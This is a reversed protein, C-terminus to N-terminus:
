GIIDLLVVDIEGITQEIDAIANAVIKNAIANDSKNDFFSDVAIAASKIKGDKDVGVFRDIENLPLKDVTLINIYDSM